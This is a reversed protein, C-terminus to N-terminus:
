GVESFECAQCLCAEGARMVRRMENMVAGDHIEGWTATLLSGMPHQLSWDSCCLALNGDPLLVNEDLGPAVRCRLPGRKRVQPLHTVNGARSHLGHRAEYSKLMSLLPHWDGYCVTELGEIGLALRAMRAAYNPTVKAKMDGAADPLHLVCPSPQVRILLEADADDMGVGTTYMQVRRGQDHAHEVMRSCERNLYPEAYGAFSVPLDHPTNALAAAFTDFAMLRPGHYASEIKDRPCYSCAMPCFVTTSVELFPM